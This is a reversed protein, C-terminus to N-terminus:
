REPSLKTGPKAKKRARSRKKAKSRLDIRQFSSRYNPCEFQYNRDPCGEHEKIFLNRVRVHKRASDTETCYLLWSAGCGHCCLEFKFYGLEEFEDEDSLFHIHLQPTEGIHVTEFLAGSDGDAFVVASM